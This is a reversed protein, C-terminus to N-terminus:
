SQMHHSVCQRTLQAYQEPHALLEKIFQRARREQVPKYNQVADHNFHHHFMRRHEKWRQGYGMLGFDWDWGMRTNPEFTFNMILVNPLTHYLSM